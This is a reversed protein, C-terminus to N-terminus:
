EYYIITEDLRNNNQTQTKSEPQKNLISDVFVVKEKSESDDLDSESENDTDDYNQLNDTRKASSKNETSSFSTDEATSYGLDADNESLNSQADDATQDNKESDYDSASSDIQDTKPPKIGTKAEAVKEVVNKIM